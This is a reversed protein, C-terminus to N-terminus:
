RWDLNPEFEFSFYKSVTYQKTQEVNGNTEIRQKEAPKARLLRAYVPITTHKAASRHWNKLNEMFSGSVLWRLRTSIAVGKQFVSRMNLLRPDEDESEDESDASGDITDEQTTKTSLVM